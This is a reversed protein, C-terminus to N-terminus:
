QRIAQGELENAHMMLRVAAERVANGVRQQRFIASGGAIRHKAWPASRPIAQPHPNQGTNETQHFLAAEDLTIVNDAQQGFCQQSAVGAATDDM